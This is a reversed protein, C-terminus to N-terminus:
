MDYPIDWESPHGIPRIPVAYGEAWSRTKYYDSCFEIAVRKCKSIAAMAHTCLLLNFQFEGCSCEKTSLNMVRDKSGGIVQFEVRDIAQVFFHSAENLLRLCSNICETTNSTMLKYRRVPSPALAWREPGLRILIDYAPKCLQKLQNMHRDFDTVRYCNAVMTFITAVDERKFRNKFNKGLHYNCLDHHADKYVKEVVNKIGLHKYFIFMANEPCGIARRLQNLFWSWSEEDEVHGIGIALPYIQENADKCIAVFLIGKFKGKLHTADIAVVPWM